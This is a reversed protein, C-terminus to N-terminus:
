PTQAQKIVLLGPLAVLLWLAVAMLLAEYRGGALLGMVPAVVYCGLAVTLYSGRRYAAAAILWGCGWFAFVISAAAHVGALSLSLAAVAYGVGVAAWGAWVARSTANIAVARPARRRSRLALAPLLVLFFLAPADWPLLAEPWHLWGRGIAFARLAALGFVCGAVFLGMGSARQVSGDDEALERIFSIEERIRRIDESM